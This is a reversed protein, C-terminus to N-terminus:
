HFVLSITIFCGVVGLIIGAVAMGRGGGGRRTIQNMGIIGCIIALPAVIMMCSMPIGLIGLVLSAVCFGNAAGGAEATAGEMTFPVGCSRCNNAAIPNVASCRPCRIHQVGDEGRVIMPAREGAAAYAHVPHPPQRIIKRTKPDILRGHRDLLPITILNGCTPCQGDQAAIAESAELRSSCHPCNFGYRKGSHAAGGAVTAALGSPAHEPVEMVTLCTPCRVMTRAQAEEASLVTQCVHCRFSIM